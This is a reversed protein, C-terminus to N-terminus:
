FVRKRINEGFNGVLPWIRILNKRVHDQQPVGGNGM